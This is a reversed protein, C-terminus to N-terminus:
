LLKQLDTLLSKAACLVPNQPSMSGSEGWARIFYELASIQEESPKWRPEDFTAEKTPYPSGNQKVGYGGGLVEEPNMICDYHGPEDEIIYGAAGGPLARMGHVQYIKGGYKIEMPEREEKPQPRLEDILEFAKKRNEKNFGNCQTIFYKLEVIKRMEEESWEALNTYNCLKVSDNICQLLNLERGYTEIVEEDTEEDRLEKIDEIIYEITAKDYASWEVPQQEKQQECWDVGEEFGWLFSQQNCRGDDETNYGKDYYCDEAAQKSQEYTYYKQEKQKELWVLCKKWDEISEELDPDHGKIGDYVRGALDKTEDEINRHVQWVLLKRIREDDSEHLEPFIKDIPLGQRARGLAEEYAKEFDM